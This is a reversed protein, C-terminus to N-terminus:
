TTRAVVRPRSGSDDLPQGAVGDIEWTAKDLQRVAPQRRGQTARLKQLNKAFERLLYSGPIWAPLSVRQPAAPAEIRLTVAYLHAHLDACRVAYHVGVTAPKEAASARVRRSPTRPAAM